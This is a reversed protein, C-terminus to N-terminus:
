CLALSNPSFCFKKWSNSTSAAARPLVCVRMCAHEWSKRVSNIDYIMMVFCGKQARTVFVVSNLAM